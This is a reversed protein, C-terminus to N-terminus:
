PQQFLVSSRLHQAIRNMAPKRALYDNSSCIHRKHSLTLERWGKVTNGHRTYQAEFAIGDDHSEKLNTPVRILQYAADFTVQFEERVNIPTCTFAYDRKPTTYNGMNSLVYMPLNITPHPNISGANPDSLLSDIELDAIKFNQTQADRQVTPYQTFGRGQQRGSELIKQVALGGMGGPIQTLRDQLITAAFGTTEIEISGRAKGTKDITLQTKVFVRNNEATLAPTRMVKAGESLAVAVPKDSDVWPLAGLPIRSDTPDTFLNLSPIYVICHNFSIPIPLEPLVYENTTNILVPVAEIDVAKLLTQLILVHDKCDGYRNKLIWRVDHPVWGGTGLYIAVYRINTRVWDHIATAKALPTTKGETIKLALEKVEDTVVAKANSLKAYEEILATQDKFTSAYIRPYTVLTNAPNTDVASIQTQTFEFEWIDLGNVLTKELAWGKSFVNLGLSQPAEIRSKFKEFIALPIGFDAYAAWNPLVPTHTRLRSRWVSKDGKQLNPFTIQYIQADPWSAGVGAAAVGLQIQINDSSVHIKRGDAKLTYAELIEYRQLDRNVSTAFKGIAIAGQDSLAEREAYLELSHTADANVRWVTELLNVKLHAANTGLNQAHAPLAFYAIMSFFALMAIRFLSM